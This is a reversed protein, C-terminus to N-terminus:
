LLVIGVLILYVIEFYIESFTCCKLIHQIRIIGQAEVTSSVNVMIRIWVILSDIDLLIEDLQIVEFVNIGFYNGLIYSYSM